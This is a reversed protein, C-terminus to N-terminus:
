SLLTSLLWLDLSLGHRRVSYLLHFMKNFSIVVAYLQTIGIGAPYFAGAKPVIFVVPM